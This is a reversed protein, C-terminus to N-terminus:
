SKAYSFGGNRKKRKNSAIQKKTKIRPAKFPHALLVASGICAAVVLDDNLDGDAQPRGNRENHVFTKCENILDENRLEIAGTRIDEAFQDCMLARTRVNTSWGRKEAKNANVTMYMKCGLNELDKCVTNGLFIPRGGRRVLLTRNPVTVCYAYDRYERKTISKMGMLSCVYDGNKKKSKYEHVTYNISNRDDISIRSMKNIKLLYEQLQDALKKSLGPFYAKECGRREFGDGVFFSDLFLKIQRSCLGAINDPAKKEKGIGTKKICYEWLAKDAIHFIILDNYQKDNIRVKQTSEWYNFPLKDLYKRITKINEPYSLSQAITMVYYQRKGDKAYNRTNGDALFIGLFNLWDDMPITKKGIKINKVEIGKWKAAHKLMLVDSTTNFIENLHRLFPGKLKNSNWNRKYTLMSHEESVCFNAHGRKGKYMFEEYVKHYDTPKQYEIMDTDINLTAVRETKNLDKFYKWGVDTLVETKKDFCYGHNNNEPCVMVDKYMKSVMWLYEAFDEPPYLGHIVAIVNGTWKDRLIGASKDGKPLGESTDASLVYQHEALPLEYIKLWGDKRELFKVNHNNYVINGTIYRGHPIGGEPNIRKIHTWVKQKSICVLDFFPFGSRLYDIDVEQALDAVSRREAEGDYWDSRVNVGSKWLKYADTDKEIPIHRGDAGKYYLNKQKLPHRTWHLTVKAIKEDIGLALKAFKNGSGKPTSTVIRCRTVDATATWCADAISGDWKSFEDLLIAKSRGGSGFDENASEGVITNGNDPNVLRMYSSHKSFSFGKPLLFSPLNELTFRCKEFLTDIVKPRDVFEEKRSGVRIDSGKYYLWRWILVYIALWSAGMDRSKETLIDYGKNIAKALDKVYEEQFDYLIFPLTSPDRRPDKTYCFINIWYSVDKECLARVMKQAVEDGNTVNFIEVRYKVNGDFDKPYKNEVIPAAKVMMSM